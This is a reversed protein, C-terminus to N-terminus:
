ANSEGVRMDRLKEMGKRVADDLRKLYCRTCLREGTEMNIVMVIRKADPCATCPLAFQEQRRRHREAIQQLNM